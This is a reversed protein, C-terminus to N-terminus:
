YVEKKLPFNIIIKADKIPEAPLFKLLEEEFSVAPHESEPM